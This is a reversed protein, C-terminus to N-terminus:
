FCSLGAPIIYNVSVPITVRRGRGPTYSKKKEDKSKVPGGKSAM